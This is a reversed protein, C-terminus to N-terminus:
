CNLYTMSRWRAYISSLGSYRHIGDNKKINFCAMHNACHRNNCKNIYTFVLLFYIQPLQVPVFVWRQPSPTLDSVFEIVYNTFEHVVKPKAKHHKIGDKASIYILKLFSIKIIVFCTRSIISVTHYESVLMVSEYKL